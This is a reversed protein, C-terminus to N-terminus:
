STAPFTEREVGLTAMYRSSSPEIVHRTASLVVPLLAQTVVFVAGRMCRERALTHDDYLALDLDLRRFSRM